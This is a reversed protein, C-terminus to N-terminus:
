GEDTSRDIRAQWCNNAASRVHVFQIDQRGLLHDARDHIDAKATVAGTGYVIRENADYGRLLYADSDELVPPLAGAAVDQPEFAKCPEAHLFVPGQEAYPQTSGFPKHSFVLFGEGQAIMQLCHRCPKGKGDSIQREPPNGHADAGGQWLKQAEESSMGKFAIM